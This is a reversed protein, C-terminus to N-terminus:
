FTLGFGYTGKRWLFHGRKTRSPPPTKSTALLSASCPLPPALPPSRAPASFRTLRPLSRLPQPHAHPLDLPPQRAVALSPRPTQNRPDPCVVGKVRRRSAFVRPRCVQPAGPTSVSACYAPPHSAASAFRSRPSPRRVSITTLALGANRRVRVVSATDRITDARLLRNERANRLCSAIAVASPARPVPGGSARWRLKCADPLCGSNPPFRDDLAEAVGARPLARGLHIHAVAPDDVVLAVGPRRVVDARSARLPHRAPPHRLIRIPQFERHQARIRLTFRASEAPCRPVFRFRGQVENAPPLGLHVARADLFLPARLRHREGAM